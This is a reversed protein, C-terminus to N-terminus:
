AQGPGEQTRGDRGYNLCAAIRDVLQGLVVDASGLMRGVEPDALRYFVFRGDQLSRVLGCEKLCALHNSANSQSLGTTTVLESVSREGDRLAELLALRSPDALGRFLKATLELRIRTDAAPAIAPTM